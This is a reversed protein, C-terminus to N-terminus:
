KLIFDLRVPMHDSYAFGNDLTQYGTMEITDSIIFGDLMYTATKGPTYPQGADRNSNVLADLSSTDLLDIAMHAGDPISSRPFPQAWSAELSAESARLESNFDGGCIVYNGQAIESSIDKMLADIQQQRVTGSSSYAILHVNYIVLDHGNTVKTRSITYCRDLEALKSLDDPMPLSRRLASSIPYESFTAIGSRSAGIPKSFPYFLYASDYNVAFDSYYNTMVSHVQQYQDQHYSRDSNLDLEQFLVITPNQTSVYSAAGVLAATCSSASEARSSEGGDMFFSYNPVYAGFGVNYTIACYPTGTTLADTSASKSPSVVELTQYDSIRHYSCIVYIVYAGVTVIVIALLGLAIRLVMSLPGRKKHNSTPTPAPTTTADDIM